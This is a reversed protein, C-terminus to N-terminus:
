ARLALAGILKKTERLRLKVKKTKSDRDKCLYPTVAQEWEDKDLIYVMGDRTVWAFLKSADGKLHEHYDLTDNAVTCKDSKVQMDFEPIDSGKDAAVNDRERIIGLTALVLAAEATEGSNYTPFIDRIARIADMINAGQVSALTYRRVVHSYRYFTSVGNRYRLRVNGSVLTVDDKNTVVAHGVLRYRKTRPEETYTVYSAQMTDGMRM